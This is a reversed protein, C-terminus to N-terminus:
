AAHRELKIVQARLVSWGSKPGSPRHVKRIQELVQLDRRIARPHIGTRASIQETTATGRQTDRCIGPMVDLILQQRATPRVGQDVIELWTGCTPCVATTM